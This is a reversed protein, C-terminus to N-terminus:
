LGKWLVEFIFVIGPVEESYNPVIKRDIRRWLGNDEHRKMTPELDKLFDIKDRLFTERVAFVLRGGSSYFPVHFLSLM